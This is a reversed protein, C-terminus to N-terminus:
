GLRVSIGDLQGTSQQQSVLQQPSTLVQSQNSKPALFGFVGSAETQTCVPEKHSRKELNSVVPVSKYKSPGAAEAEMGAILTDVRLNAPIAEEKGMDILVKKIKEAEAQLKVDEWDMYKNGRCLDSAQIENIRQNVRGLQIRINQTDDSTVAKEKSPSFGFVAASFSLVTSLAASVAAIIEYIPSKKEKQEAEARKKYLDERNKYLPALKKKADLAASIKQLAEKDAKLQESTREETFFEVGKLDENIEKQSIEKASRFVAYESKIKAMARERQKQREEQEKLVENESLAKHYHYGDSKWDGTSTPHEIPLAMFDEMSMESTNIAQRKGVDGTYILRIPAKKPNGQADILDSVLIEFESYLEPDTKTHLKAIIKENERLFAVTYNIQKTQEVTGDSKFKPQDQGTLRLHYGYLNQQVSRAFGIAQQETLGLTKEPLRRAVSIQLSEKQEVVAQKQNLLVSKHALLEPTRKIDLQEECLDLQEELRKLEDEVARMKSNLIIGIEAQNIKVQLFQKYELLEKRTIVDEFVGRAIIADLKSLQEEIKKNEIDLQKKLDSFQQGLVEALNAEQTTLLDIEKREEQTIESSKGVLASRKQKIKELEASQKSVQSWLGNEVETYEDTTASSYVISGGGRVFDEALKSLYHDHNKEQGVTTTWYGDKDFEFPVGPNSREAFLQQQRLSVQYIDNKKVNAANIATKDSASM